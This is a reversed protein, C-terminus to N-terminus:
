YYGRRDSSVVVPQPFLNQAKGVGTCTPATVLKAIKNMNITIVQM